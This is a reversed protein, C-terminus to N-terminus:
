RYVYLVLQDYSLEHDEEDPLKGVLKIRLTQAEKKLEAAETNQGVEHLIM